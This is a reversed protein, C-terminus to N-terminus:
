SRRPPRMPAVKGNASWGGAAIQRASEDYQAYYHYYHGDYRGYYRGGHSYSHKEINTRNLVVGLVRARTEDIRDLTTRVANRSVMEAAVVLVVGDGMPALLLPESVAGVPPCDIVVWDYHRRLGEVFTRLTQSTLLDAPSPVPTGAPLFSLGRRVKWQIAESPKSNGVLIDSVGPSQRCALSAHARPRRLDADMLLVEAGTAALALALNVSTITKGEGPATSTVVVIRPGREPWCFGLSTRLVRYGEAFRGRAAPDTLVRGGGDDPVEPIIALLPANLHMRVDNPGKITNDLYDVTFALGIGVFGGLLIGLAIDRVRRPRTPSTPVAAPDVIRINSAKLESAVDTEKHRSLLGDLVEKSADVERKASDYVVSRRSLDLAEAKAAEIASAISAEQAAAAKYQNETSRIVAQAELALKRKTEAIQNRVRIVEPHQDLYRQLLEAEQRELNALEIRLQQGVPSKMVEPLEEPNPAKRMQEALAQTQLRQSKVDNLATGLEKLRQDLLTRREEINVIGEQEKLKQLSAEAEEVAKRQETIQTGLWQGAESSTEFRFELTQAIYVHALKNAVAAALEPRHAEFSVTVLRSNRVPRVDLRRTFKDIAAEMEPSTGPAAKQIADLQAADRPGGFEPDNLLNLAVVTRQALARSQLLKYQTQYYDDRAADVQTVEKFSVVNPNEREILLETTGSYVPRTLLSRLTVLAVVAVFAALAIRRRALVISVYDWIHGGSAMEPPAAYPPQMPESM